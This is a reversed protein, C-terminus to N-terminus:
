VTTVDDTVKTLLTGDKFKWVTTYEIYNTESIKIKTGNKAKTLTTLDQLSDATLNNSSLYELYTTDNLTIFHRYLDINGDGYLTMNTSTSNEKIIHYIVGTELNDANKLTDFQAQTLFVDKTKNMTQM